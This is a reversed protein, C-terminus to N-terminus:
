SACMFRVTPVSLLPNALEPIVLLDVNLQILIPLWVHALLGVRIAQWIVTLLLLLFEM